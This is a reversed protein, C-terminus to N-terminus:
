QGVTGSRLLSLLTDMWDQRTVKLFCIDILLSVEISLQTASLAQTVVPPEFRGADTSKSDSLVKCGM